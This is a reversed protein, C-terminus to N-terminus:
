GNSQPILVPSPIFIPSPIYDFNRDTEELFGVDGEINKMVKATSFSIHPTYIYMACTIGNSLFVDQNSLRVTSGTYFKGRAGGNYGFEEGRDCRETWIRFWRTTYYVQRFFGKFYKWEPNEDWCSKTKDLTELCLYGTARDMRFEVSQNNILSGPQSGPGYVLGSEKQIIALIFAPNVKKVANDICIRKNPNTSFDCGNGLSGQSLEWIFESTLMEKGYYPKTVHFPRLREPVGPFSSPQIIIDTDNTQGKCDQFGKQYWYDNSDCSDPNDDHHFGIKVKYTALVSRHFELFEQIKRASSFKVPLYYFDQYRLVRSPDSAQINTTPLFLALIFTLFIIIKFLNLLKHM